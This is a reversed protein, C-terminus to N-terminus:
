RAMMSRAGLAGRLWVLLDQPTRTDIDAGWREPPDDPNLYGWGASVTTVGAARGSTIDSRADGVYVATRPPVSLRECALLVPAPHPKPHAATDGSVVCAARRELDLSELLPETLWAHKNTVVGWRVGHGELTRLIPDIGPFLRTRVAIRERYEALFRHRARDHRAPDAGPTLVNAIMQRAGGSVLPRLRAEDVAGVDAATALADALDPLTDALTGDLDFLMAELRPASEASM